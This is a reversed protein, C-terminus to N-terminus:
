IDRIGINGTVKRTGEPEDAVPTEQAPAEQVSDTRQTCGMTASAMMLISLALAFFKKKARDM